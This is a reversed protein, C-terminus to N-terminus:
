KRDGQPGGIVDMASFTDDFYVQNGGNNLRLVISSIKATAKFGSDEEPDERRDINIRETPITSANPTLLNSAPTNSLFNERSLIVCAAYDPCDIFLANVGDLDDFIDMTMTGISTFQLHIEDDGHGGSWHITSGDLYNTLVAETDNTSASATGNQVTANYTKEAPENELGYAYTGNIYLKDAGAEGHITCSTNGALGWIYFEDSAPGGFLEVDGQTAHVQIADNSSGGFVRTESNLATSSVKSPLCSFSTLSM